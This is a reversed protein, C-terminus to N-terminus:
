LLDIVVFRRWVVFFYGYFYFVCCCHAIVCCSLHSVYFCTSHVDDVFRRGIKMRSGVYLLL